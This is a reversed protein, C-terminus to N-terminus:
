PTYSTNILRSLTNGETSLTAQRIKVLRTGDNTAQAPARGELIVLSEQSSKGHFILRQTMPRKLWLRQKGKKTNKENGNLVRMRSIETEQSLKTMEYKQKM